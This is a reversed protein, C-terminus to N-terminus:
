LSSCTRHRLGDLPQWAPRPRERRILLPHWSWPDGCWLMDGKEETIAFTVTPMAHRWFHIHFDNCHENHHLVTGVNEVFITIYMWLQIIPLSITTTHFIIKVHHRGIHNKTFIQLYATGIWNHVPLIFVASLLADYCKVNPTSIM